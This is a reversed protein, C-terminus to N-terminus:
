AGLCKKECDVKQDPLLSCAAVDPPLLAAFSGEKREVTVEADVDKEPCHVWRRKRGPGWHHIAYLGAAVMAAAVLIAFMTGLIM